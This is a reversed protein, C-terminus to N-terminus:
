LAIQTVLESVTETAELAPLFSVIDLHSHVLIKVILFSLNDGGYNKCRPPGTYARNCDLPIVM